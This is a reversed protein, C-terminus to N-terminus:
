SSRLMKVPLDIAQQMKVLYICKKKLFVKGHFKNRQPLHLWYYKQTIAKEKEKSADNTAKRKQGNNWKWRIMKIM